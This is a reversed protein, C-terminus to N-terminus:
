MRQYKVRDGRRTGVTLQDGSKSLVLAHSRWTIEKGRKEFEHRKGERDILGGNAIFVQHYRKHVDVYKDHIEWQGDLKRICRQANGSKDWLPVHAPALVNPGHPPEDSLVSHLALILPHHPPLITSGSGTNGQAASGSRPKESDDVTQRVDLDGEAVKYDNAHMNAETIAGPLVYSVPKDEPRGRSLDRRSRWAQVSSSRSRSGPLIPHVTDKSTWNYLASAIRSSLSRRGRDM